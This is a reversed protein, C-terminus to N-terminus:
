EWICSFFIVFFGIFNRNEKWMHEDSRSWITQFFNFFSFVFCLWLCIFNIWDFLFFYINQDFVHFWVVDWKIIILTKKKKREWFFINIVSNSNRDIVNTNACDTLFYRMKKKCRRWVRWSMWCWIEREREIVVVRDFSQGSFILLFYYNLNGESKVLILQNIARGFGIPNNHFFWCSYAFACRRRNPTLPLLLVGSTVFCWTVLPYCWEM